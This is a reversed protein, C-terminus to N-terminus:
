PGTLFVLQILKLVEILSDCLAQRKLEDYEFTRQDKQCTLMHGFFVNVQFLIDENEKKLNMKSTSRRSITKM